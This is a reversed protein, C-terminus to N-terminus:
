GIGQTELLDLVTQGRETLAFSGHVPYGKYADMDCGSLPAGYDLSILRKVELCQLILSYEEKPYDTDELYVPTMDDARRAVPLFPIRSLKDLVALEGATLELTNACGGCSGCSGCSDCGGM